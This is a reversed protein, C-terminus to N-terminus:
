YDEQFIKFTSLANIDLSYKVASIAEPIVSSIIKPFNDPDCDFIEIKKKLFKLSSFNKLKEETLGERELATLFIAIDAHNKFILEKISLFLDLLSYGVESEIISVVGLRLSKGETKELQYESSMKVSSSSYIKTKIELSQNPLEFDHSANFPGVWCELIKEVSMYPERTKILEILYQLEGWLGIIKENSLKKQPTNKFLKNWKIYTKIFEDCAESAEYIHQISLNLSTILDDFLSIFEPDLLKIQLYNSEEIYLLQINDNEVNKLKPSYSPPLYILISHLGLTDVALFVDLPSKAEFRLTHLGSQVEESKLLEWKNDLNM